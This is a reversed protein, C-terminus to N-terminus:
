RDRDMFSLYEHAREADRLLRHHRAPLLSGTEMAVEVM